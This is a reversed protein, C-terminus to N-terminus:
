KFELQDFPPRVPKGMADTVPVDCPWASAFKGEIIPHRVADTM